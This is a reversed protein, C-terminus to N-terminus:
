VCHLDMQKPWRTTSCCGQKNNHCVIWGPKQCGPWCWQCTPSVIGTSYCLYCLFKQANSLLAKVENWHAASVFVGDVNCKAWSAFTPVAKQCLKKACSKPKAKAVVNCIFLHYAHRGYRTNVLTHKSYSASLRFVNASWMNQQAKQTPQKGKGKSQTTGYAM